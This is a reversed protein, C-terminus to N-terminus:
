RRPKKARPKVAKVASTAPMAVNVQLLVDGERGTVVPQPDVPVPAVVTVPVPDGGLQGANAAGAGAVGAGATFALAAVTSAVRALRRDLAM